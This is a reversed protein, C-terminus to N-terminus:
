RNKQGRELKFGCKEFLKQQFDLPVSFGERLVSQDVVKSLLFM